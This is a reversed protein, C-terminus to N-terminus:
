RRKWRDRGSEGSDAESERDRGELEFVSRPSDEVGWVGVGGDMASRRRGRGRGPGSLPLEVYGGRRRQRWEMVVKICVLGQLVGGFIFLLTFLGSKEAERHREERERQVQEMVERGLLAYHGGAVPRSLFGVSWGEDPTISDGFVANDDKRLFKSLADLFLRRCSSSHPNPDSASSSLAPPSPSCTAGAWALWDTKARNLFRSDLAPGYPQAVTPYFAEQMEYVSPPFVSLGLLKDFYLNYHTVWSTQNGYTGLLHTRDTSIALDVFKGRYAEAVDFFHDRDAEEGLEGAIESFARLGLIGKVVLSTQNAASGFFDDTTRQDGPYLCEDELYQAWAKFLAYRKRAQAWAMRAGERRHDRGEGVVADWGVREKGGRVKEMVWHKARVHAAVEVVEPEAVKMGSLAMLLMNAAEEIPLNAYLFDNHGTANPYHDGLDHTPPIPLYLKSTSYRYIPELLLPLLTPSSYLLFPLFPAIVDITQVNGNSSIEKLMVMAPIPKGTVPSYVELGAEGRVGEESEDWVAEMAMFVQRTSISVVDAYEKGDVKVADRYLKNNFEDSLKKQTPYDSFFFSLAQSTSPLTSAWLPRLFITREGPRPQDDPGRSTTSLDSTMYKVLPDRVHGIALLASREALPTSPSISGFSHALAFVPEDLVRSTNTDSRTRIPRPSTTNSRSSLVGSSAFKRRTAMADSGASWTTRVPSLGASSSTQAAYFVEGHLIRDTSIVEGGGWPADKYAEEFPRQNKLRLELGVWDSEDGEISEWEMEEHEEDALWLGNIESYVEVQHPQGDLSSVSLSLYSFPLSQRFLDAPTVPSLFSATLSVTSTPPTLVFTTEATTHHLETTECPTWETLNGMWNCTVGDVRLLGQWGLSETTWFHPDMRTLDKEKRGTLYAGLYPGRVALPVVIPTYDAENTAAKVWPVVLLPALLSLLLLM